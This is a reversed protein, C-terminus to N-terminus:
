WPRMESQEEEPGVANSVISTAVIGLAEVDAAGGGGVAASVCDVNADWSALTGSNSDYPGTTFLLLSTGSVSLSVSYKTVHTLCMKLSCM